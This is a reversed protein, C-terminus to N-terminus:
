RRISAARPPARPPARPGPLSSSPTQDGRGTRRDGAGAPLRVGAAGPLSRGGRPRGGGPQPLAAGGRDPDRPQRAGGLGRVAPRLGGPPRGHAADLQDRGRGHPRPGAGRARGAAPRRHAPGPEGRKGRLAGPRARGRAAAPPREVLGRGLPHPEPLARRRDLAARRDPAPHRPARLGPGVAARLGQRPEGRQARQGQLPRHDAGARFTLDLLRARRRPCGLPDARAAGRDPERRGGTRRGAVGGHRGGDPRPDAAGRRASHRPPRPGRPRALGRHRAAHAQQRSLLQAVKGAFGVKM